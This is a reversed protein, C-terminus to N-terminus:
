IPKTPTQNGRWFNGKKKEIEKSPIDLMDIDRNGGRTTRERIKKAKLPRAKKNEVGKEPAVEFTRTNKIEPGGGPRRTEQVVPIPSKTKGRV